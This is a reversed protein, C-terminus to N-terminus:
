KGYGTVVGDGLVKQDALGFATTRHTAFMDLEQFSGPDLLLDLRERATLKGKKHQTEIRQKGGGLLAQERLQHLEELKERTTKMVSRAGLWDFSYFAPTM